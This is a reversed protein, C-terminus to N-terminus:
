YALPISNQRKVRKPKFTPGEKKKQPLLCRNEVRNCSSVKQFAQFKQKQDSNFIPLNLYIFLSNPDHEQANPVCLFIGFLYFWDGNQFWGKQIHTAEGETIVQGIKFLGLLEHSARCCLPFLLSWSAFDSIM